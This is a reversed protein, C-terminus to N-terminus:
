DGPLTKALAREDVASSSLADILAGLTPPPNENQLWLFLFKELKESATSYEKKIKECTSADLRLM